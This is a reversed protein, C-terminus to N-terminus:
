ENGFRELFADAEAIEADIEPKNKFRLLPDEIVRHQPGEYMERRKQRRFEDTVDEVPVEFLAALLQTAIWLESNEHLGNVGTSEGAELNSM